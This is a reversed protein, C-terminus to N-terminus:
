IAPLSINLDIEMSVVTKAKNNLLNYVIEVVDQNNLSLKNLNRVLACFLMCNYVFM